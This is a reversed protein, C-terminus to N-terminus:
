RKKFVEDESEVAKPAKESSVRKADYKIKSSNVDDAWSAGVRWMKEGYEIAGIDPSKGKYGKSFGEIVSGADIVASNPAPAFDNDEASIFPSVPSNLNTIFETGIWDEGDRTKSSAYNNVVRIREIEYHLAWRGMSYGANWITNNYINLDTNHWNFTIGPWTVNSVINNYVDYGQSHTDLYIGAVRGDTYSPGYSDHLWNHHVTSNKMSDNGVTYFVGGDNNIKLCDYIDNYAIESEAGSVYIGDRGCTYVSNYTVVTQPCNSRIPNAHIGIANFNRVVNNTITNHSSVNANLMVIGAAMGGEVLNNEITAHSGSILISGTNSQAEIDILGRLSQSCNQFKGNSVTCHNGKIRVEGGFCNIGDLHIYDGNIEATTERASIRVSGDAPAVGGPFIAYIMKEDENYCWEMPCDLLEMKGFVYLRGRNKNIMVTPNHPDFPWKKIDVGAFHIKDDRSSTILRTWSAGSHAGLYCFYGGALDVNPIGKIDFHTASGGDVPQADLSFRDGDSNNPFRAIDLLEGNYYLTNHIVPMSLSVKARYIDDKYHQWDDVPKTADIVVNDDKYNKIVIPASENGSNEINLAEQYHGEMVVCEDGAQMKSTAQTITRLPSKKSGLNNDDGNPSVYYSKAPLTTVSILLLASLSTLLKLKM